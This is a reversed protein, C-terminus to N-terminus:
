KYQAKLVPNIEQTAAAGGTSNWTNVFEEFKANAAAENPSRVIEVFYRNILDNSKGRFDTWKGSTALYGKPTTVYRNFNKFSADFQQVQAPTSGFTTQWKAWKPTDWALTMVSLNHTFPLSLENPFGGLTARAPLFAIQDGNRTYHVGEVGLQLLDQGASTRTFNLIRAAATPNNGRLGGLFSVGGFQPQATYGRATSGAVTPAALVLTKAGKGADDMLKQYVAINAGGYLIVSCFNGAVYRDRVPDAGTNLEWSVPAVLGEGTMRRFLGLADKAKPQVAWFGWDNGSKVWGKTPLGFAGFFASTVNAMEQEIGVGEIRESAKCAKLYQFYQDFTRPVPLKLKDLIDKRIHIAGANPAYGYGGLYIPVGYIKGGVKLENFFGGRKYDSLVNPAAAGVAGEYPAVAGAEILKNYVPWDPFVPGLIDPLQGSALAATIRDQYVDWPIKVVQIETNTAKEVAKLVPDASWDKIGANDGPGWILVKDPNAQTLATGFLGAAVIASGWLASKHWMSKM